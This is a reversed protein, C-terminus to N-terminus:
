GGLAAKASAWLALRRDLGNLGGNIRRTITTMDGA